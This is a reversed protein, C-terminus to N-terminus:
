QGAECAEDFRALRDLIRHPALGELFRPPTDALHAVHEGWGRARGRRGSQDAAVADGSIVAEVDIVLFHLVHAPERAVVDCQHQLVAMGVIQAGRRWDRDRM